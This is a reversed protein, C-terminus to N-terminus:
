IPRFNIVIQKKEIIYELNRIKNDVIDSSAILTSNIEKCQWGEYSAPLQIIDNRTKKEFSYRKARDIYKDMIDWILFVFGVIGLVMGFVGSISISVGYFLMLVIGSSTSLVSFTLRVNEKFNYFYEDLYTKLLM